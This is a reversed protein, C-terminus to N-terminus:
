YLFMYIRRLLEPNVYAELYTGALLIIFAIAAIMIKNRTMYGRNYVLKLVFWLSAAYLIYQPMVSVLYVLVGSLNYYMVAFSILAGACVGIYGLYLMATVRGMKTHGLLLLLFFDRFRTKCVYQWLYMGNISVEEFTALYGSNFVQPRSIGYKVILNAYATGAAIGCFLVLAVKYRLVMEKLDTMRYM